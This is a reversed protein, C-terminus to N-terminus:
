HDPISQFFTLFVLNDSFFNASDSILEACDRTRFHDGFIPM